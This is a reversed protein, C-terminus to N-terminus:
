WTGKGGPADPTERRVKEVFKRAIYERLPRTDIYNRVTAVEFRVQDARDGMFVRGTSIVQHALLPPSENLVVVDVDNTHTLGVLETTLRLQIEGYREVPIAADLLVAVDLDSDARETGRASSGFLYGLVVGAEEMVGRIADLSADFRNAITDNM